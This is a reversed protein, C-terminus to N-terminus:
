QTHAREAAWEDLLRRYVYCRPSDQKSRIVDGFPFCGQEIGARLMEPSIKMGMQRLLSAAEAANMIDLQISKQMNM